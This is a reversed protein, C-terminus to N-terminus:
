IICGREPAFYGSTVRSEEERRGAAVSCEQLKMLQGMRADTSGLRKEALAIEPWVHVAVDGPPGFLAECTLCCFDVLMDLSWDVGDGYWGAAEVM